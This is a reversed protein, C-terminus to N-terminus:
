RRVLLARLLVLKVIDVLNRRRYSADLQMQSIGDMSSELFQVCIGHVALSRRTTFNEREILLPPIFAVRGL